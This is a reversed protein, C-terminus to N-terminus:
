LHVLKIAKQQSNHEIKKFTVDKLFIKSYSFACLEIKEHVVAVVTRVDLADLM